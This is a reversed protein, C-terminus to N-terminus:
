RAEEGSIVTGRRDDRLFQEVLSHFGADPRLGLSHALPSELRSPWSGVISEVAADPHFRVLSRAKEGGVRRLVELMEGVTVTLAPLNVARYGALRIPDAEAVALLGTITNDPSSLAVRTEEPVPCISAEGHLPERIIGSLFSSAAANPKGPRVSVTMLRAVRGDIFGKRTYEAVLQECIFKQVGYSSQPLPATADTVVLPMPQQPTGGFVAVSSSFVLRPVKGSKRLMELLARTSDINSRMGLDFDRECEASTAAALHFVVDPSERGVQPLLALLDGEMSRAERHASLNIAPSCRDVLLVEQLAENAFTGRRLLEHALRTGLFGAGGTIMVKM